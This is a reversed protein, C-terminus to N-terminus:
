IFDETPVGIEFTPTQPACAIEAGAADDAEDVVVEDAVCVMVDEAVGAAVIEHGADLPAMYLLKFPM